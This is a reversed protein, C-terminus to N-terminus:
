ETLLTDCNICAGVFACQIAILRIRQKTEAVRNWPMCMRLDILYSNIANESTSQPPSLISQLLWPAYRIKKPDFRSEHLEFFCGVTDLDVVSASYRLTASVIASNSHTFISSPSSPYSWGVGITTHHSLKPAITREFLGVSCKLDLCKAMFKWKTQSLTAALVRCTRNTVIFSWAVSMRVFANGLTVNWYRSDLNVVSTGM